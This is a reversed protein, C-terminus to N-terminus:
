IWMVPSDLVACFEPSHIPQAIIGGDERSFTLDLLM